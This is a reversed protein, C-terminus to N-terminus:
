QLHLQGDTGRYQPQVLRHQSSQGTLSATITPPAKDIKVMVVNSAAGTNGAKDTTTQTTSSNTGESSLVQVSPCAVVGSLADACTFDVTVDSTYWGNSGNPPTAAAASITPVTKDVAVTVVNSAASTNGVLDTVAQATSNVTSGEASLVQDSPCASAIGSL